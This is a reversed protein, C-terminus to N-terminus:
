MPVSVYQGFASGPIHHVEVVKWGSDAALSVFHGLTRDQSNCFVYMQLCIHAKTPNYDAAVRVYRFIWGTHCITSRVLVQCFLNRSLLVLQATFRTPLALTAHTHYLLM